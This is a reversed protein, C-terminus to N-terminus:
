EVRTRETRWERYTGLILLGVGKEKRRVRGFFHRTRRIQPRQPSVGAEGEQRGRIKSLQTLSARAYALSGTEWKLKRKKFCVGLPLNIEKQTKGSKSGSKSAGLVGKYM